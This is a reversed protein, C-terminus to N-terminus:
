RLSDLFENIGQALLERRRQLFDQYADLEWLRPDTPVFQQELREKRVNLLYEKPEKKGISLNAIKSVFAINAIENVDKRSYRDAILARPFVHHLELLHQTGLNTSSLSIGTAWDRAGRRRCALYAALFFPSNRGADDLDEGSVHLRGTEQMLSGELAEFPSSGRILRLDHDLSTESSGSYRGWTSSLLFWRLLANTNVDALARRALYAVPVVLANNSPVWEWSELGLNERALNLFFEIGKRTETWASQIENPSTTALAPFRSQGTAIATLCRLLFRMEIDYGEDDLEERFAKIDGTVMGPLRLALQAIALEAQRLRTGKSNVRVFIKTVEEYEFGELTHVSVRTEKIKELVGLRKLSYRPLPSGTRIADSQLM